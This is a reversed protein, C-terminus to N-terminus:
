DASHVLDPHQDESSDMWIALDIQQTTFGANLVHESFWAEAVTLEATREQDSLDDALLAFRRMDNYKRVRNCAEPSIFSSSEPASSFYEM